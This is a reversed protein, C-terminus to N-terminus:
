REIQNAPQFLWNADLSFIEAVEDITFSANVQKVIDCVVDIDFPNDVRNLSILYKDENEKLEKEYEEETVLKDAVQLSLQLFENKKILNKIAIIYYKEKAVFYNYRLSLDGLLSVMDDSFKIEFTNKSDKLTILFQKSAKFTGTTSKQVDTVPYSTNNDM